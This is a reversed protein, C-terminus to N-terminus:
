VVAVDSSAALESCEAAAGATSASIDAAKVPFSERTRQWIRARVEALPVGDFEDVSPDYPTALTGGLCQAGWIM